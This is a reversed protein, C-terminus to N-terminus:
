ENYKKRIVVEMRQRGVPNASHVTVGFPPWFEPHEELWCVVDYGTKEHPCCNSFTTEPTQMDGIHLQKDICDQCSGIDHDLSAFMVTGSKLADISEDYTKVWVFGVAGFKAPDRVDDLWLSIQESM